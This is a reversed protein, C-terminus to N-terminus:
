PTILFQAQDTGGCASPIYFTNFGSKIKTTIAQDVCDGTFPAYHYGYSVQRTGQTTPTIDLSHAVEMGVYFQMSKSLIFNRVDTSAPNGDLVQVPTTWAGNVFTSYKVLSTGGDTILGTIYTIIRQTFIDINGVTNPSGIGYAWGLTSPLDINLGEIVRIGKQGPGYLRNRNITRDNVTDTINLTQPATLGTFTDV